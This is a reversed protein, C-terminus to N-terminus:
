SGRISFLKGQPNTITIEWVDQKAWQRAIDLAAKASTATTALPGAGNRSQGVIRYV